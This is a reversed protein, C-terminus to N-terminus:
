AFLLNEKYLRGSSGQSEFLQIVIIYLLRIMKKDLRALFRSDQKHEEEM